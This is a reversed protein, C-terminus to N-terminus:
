RELVTPWATGEENLPLVRPAARLATFAEVDGALRAREAGMQLAWSMGGALCFTGGEYAWDAHVDWGMM